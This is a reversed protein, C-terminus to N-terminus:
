FFVKVKYNGKPEVEGGFLKSKYIQFRSPKLSETNVKDAEPKTSYVTPSVTAVPLQKTTNSSLSTQAKLKVVDEKTGLCGIVTNCTFM